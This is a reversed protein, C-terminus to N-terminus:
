SLDKWFFLLFFYQQLPSRFPYFRLFYENSGKIGGSLLSMGEEVKINETVVIGDDVVLGTAICHGVFDICQFVWVAV